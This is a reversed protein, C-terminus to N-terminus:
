KLRNKQVPPEKEKKEKIKIEKEAHSPAKPSDIRTIILRPNPESKM